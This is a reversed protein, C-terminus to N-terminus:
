GDEIRNDKALRRGRTGACLPRLWFSGQCHFYTQAPAWSHWQYTLNGGDVQETVGLCTHPKARVAVLQSTRGCMHKQFSSLLTEHLRTEGNSLHYGWWSDWRGKRPLSQSISVHSSMAAVSDPFFVMKGPGMIVETSDVPNPYCSAM